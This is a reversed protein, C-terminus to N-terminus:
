YKWNRSKGEAIWEVAQTVRKTKTEDRKAEAIWECYERRHGPPFAEFVAKAKKNKALAAALEKPVEAEPKPATKPKRVTVGQDNLAMAQKIYGSLVQKGPLEKVSALRGFQGASDGGSDLGKILPAKWFRLAAHEKFAAMACMMEGRYDFHPTSWKMTEGAEPCAAHVLERIHTLIPKAFEPSKAIYADVRPDRTGM